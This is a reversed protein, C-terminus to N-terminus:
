SQYISALQDKTNDVAKISADGYDDGNDVTDEGYCMTMLNVYKINVGTDLYVKVIEEGERTLGQPLVPLTLSVDVGTEDQLQKIAKANVKNQELDMGTGEIDLDFM